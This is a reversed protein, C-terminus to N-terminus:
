VQRVLLENAYHRLLSKKADDAALSQLQQLARQHYHERTAEALEKVGLQLYLATVAKIKENADQQQNLQYQLRAQDGGKALELAKILLLTKKNQRIDGGIQKGFGENGFTDLLDDQIQFAIGMNLGYEYMKKGEEASAGGVIAGCQLCCGLLVATKFTIMELYEQETVQAQTEFNMDMMQGECVQIATRNFAHLLDVLKDPAAKMLQEYVYVQMVDGSLIATSSGFKEHVTPQGRRIQADDMIDDHVLTFNHFLELAFAVPMAEHVDGGFLDCGILTLLPRMRKGGLAMIYGVPHYLEVPRGAPVAHHLYKEFQQNWESYQQM